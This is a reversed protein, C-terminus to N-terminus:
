GNGAIAARGAAAYLAAFSAPLVTRGGWDGADALPHPTMVPDRNEARTGHRRSSGHPAATSIASPATGAAPAIAVAPVAGAAAVAEDQFTM